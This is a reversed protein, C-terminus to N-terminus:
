RRSTVPPHRNSRSITVYVSYVEPGSSASLKPAPRRSQFDHLVEHLLGAFFHGWIVVRNGRGSCNRISISRKLPKQVFPRLTRSRSAGPEFGPGGVLKSTLIPM